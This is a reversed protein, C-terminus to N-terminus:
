RVIFTVASGALVKQGSIPNQSVIISGASIAVPAPAPLSAAGPLQPGTAPTALSVRGAQLGAGRLAATATGVSQGIFSPMVFAKPLSSDSVLL